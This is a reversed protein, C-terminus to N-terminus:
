PHPASNDGFKQTYEQSGILDNIVEGIQKGSSMEQKYHEMGEADPDRGLFRKYALTIQDPPAPHTAIFRENFESSHALNRVVDRVTEQNQTLRNAHDNLSDQDIDRELVQHYVDHLTQEAAQKDM